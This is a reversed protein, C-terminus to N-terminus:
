WGRYNKNWQSSGFNSINSFQPVIPPNLNFQPQNWNSGIPASYTTSPYVNSYSTRSTQTITPQQVGNITRSITETRVSSGSQQGSTTWTMIQAQAQDPNGTFFGLGFVSLAAILLKRM